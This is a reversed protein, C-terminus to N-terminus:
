MLSGYISMIRHSFQAYLAATLGQPLVRLLDGGMEKCQHRDSWPGSSREQGHRDTSSSKLTIM